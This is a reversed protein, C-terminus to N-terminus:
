GRDGGDVSASKLSDTRIGALGGMVDAVMMVMNAVDAAENRIEHPRGRCELFAGYRRLKAAANGLYEIAMDFADRAKEDPGLVDLLEATEDIVRAVLLHPADTSWGGKHANDDLKARMIKAFSAVTPWREEPAAVAKDSRLSELALRTAEARVHEFARKLPEEFRPEVQFSECGVIFGVPKAENSRLACPGKHARPLVCPGQHRVDLMCLNSGYRARCANTDKCQTSSGTGMTTEEPVDRACCWCWVKRPEDAVADSSDVGRSVMIATVEGTPDAQDERIKRTLDSVSATYALARGLDVYVGLVMGTVFLSQRADKIAAELEAVRTEAKEARERETKVARSLDQKVIREYESDSEPMM